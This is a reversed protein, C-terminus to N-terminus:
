RPVCGKPYWVTKGDVVAVTSCAQLPKGWGAGWVAAVAIFGVIIVLAVRETTVVAGRRDSRTTDEDHRCM